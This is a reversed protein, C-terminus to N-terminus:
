TGLLAALVRFRARAERPHLPEALAPDLHKVARRAAATFSVTGDAGIGEVGDKRAARQQFAVVQPLTVNGPLDFSVQGDRIEVPVGGPLGLAGPASARTAPGGPLLARLVPMASSATLINLSSQAPLPIGEFALWDARQGEQGLYVRPGPQGAGTADGRMAAQVHAHHALVRVLPASGPVTAARSKDRLAARARAQIMGANGIGITPARNLCALMPHTIDPYSCNVITGTFGAARAGDMIALVLPLQAPLQVAFGARLMAAGVADRRGNLHWPSLLSASQVVLQPRERDLVQAVADDHSADLAVSRVPVPGCSNLLGALGQQETPHRGALVLEDVDSCNALREALRQGLDGLGILLVRGTM